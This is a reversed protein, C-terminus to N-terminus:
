QSGLRFAVEGYHVFIRDTPEHPKGTISICCAELVTAANSPDQTTKMRLQCSSDVKLVKIHDKKTTTGDLFVIAAIM